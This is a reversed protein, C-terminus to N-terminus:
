FRVTALVRSCYCQWECNGLPSADGAYAGVSDAWAAHAASGTPINEYNQGVSRTSDYRGGRINRRAERYVLSGYQSGGKILVFFLCPISSVHYAAYILISSCRERARASEREREEREHKDRRRVLKSQKSHMDEIHRLLSCLIEAKAIKKNTTKAFVAAAQLLNYRGIACRTESRGHADLMQLSMHAVEVDYFPSTISFKSGEELQCDDTGGSVAGGTGKRIIAAFAKSERVALEKPAGAAAAMAVAAAAMAIAANTFEDEVISRNETTAEDKTEGDDDKGGEEAKIRATESESILSRLKSLLYDFVTHDGVLVALHFANGRM